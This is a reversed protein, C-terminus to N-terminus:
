RPLLTKRLYFSFYVRRFFSQLMIDAPIIVPILQRNNNWKSKEFIKSGGSAKNKVQCLLAFSRYGSDLSVSPTDQCSCLIGFFYYDFYKIM